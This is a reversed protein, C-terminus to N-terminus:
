FIDFEPKAAAETEVKEEEIKEETEPVAAPIATEKVTKKATKTKKIGFRKEQLEAMPTDGQLKRIQRAVAYYYEMDGTYNARVVARITQKDSGFVRVQDKCVQILNGDHNYEVYDDGEINKEQQAKLVMTRVNAGTFNFKAM